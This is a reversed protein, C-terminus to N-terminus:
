RKGTPITTESHLAIVSSIPDNFHLDKLFLPPRPPPVELVVPVIDPAGTESRKQQARAYRAEKRVWKSRRASDSWFLYFVDAKDIEEFLRRGWREGPELHLIDQFIEIGALKLAQARRLVETRDASSYSLFARQYRRVGGALSPAVTRERMGVTIRFGVRGIPEGNVSIIMVPVLIRRLVAWPARVKFHVSIPRGRWIATQRRPTDNSLRLGKTDFFIEITQGHKLLGELEQTIQRGREPDVQSALASVQLEEGSAHVFVQVLADAGSRMASPAFVSCAAPEIKDLQPEFARSHAETLPASKPEEDFPGPRVLRGNKVKTRQGVPLRTFLGGELPDKWRSTLWELNISLDVTAHANERLVYGRRAVDLPLHHPLSEMLESLEIYNRWGSPLRVRIPENRDVFASSASAVEIKALAQDIEPTVVGADLNRAFLRNLQAITDIIKKRGVRHLMEDTVAVAVGAIGDRQRYDHCFGVCGIITAPANAITMPLTFWALEGPDLRLTRLDLAHQLGPTASTLCGVGRVTLGEFTAFVCVGEFPASIYERPETM